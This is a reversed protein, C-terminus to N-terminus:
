RKSLLRESLGLYKGRSLRLRNGSDSDGRFGLRGGFDQERFGWSIGFGWSLGFDVGRCGLEARFGM